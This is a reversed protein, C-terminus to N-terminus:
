EGQAPPSAGQMREDEATSAQDAEVCAVSILPMGIDRVKRFLGHLAAQDVVPGALLTDGTDELTVSLGEFWGTWRPDLHGQLRIHYVPARGQNSHPNIGNTM